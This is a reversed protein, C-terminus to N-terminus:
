ARRGRRAARPGLAPHTRAGGNPLDVLRPLFVTISGQPGRRRLYAYRAGAPALRGTLDALSPMRWPSAPQWVAEAEWPVEGSVTVAVYDGAAPGGPDDPDPPPVTVNSVNLTLEELRAGRSLSAAMMEGLLPIFETDDTAAEWLQPPQEVKMFGHARLLAELRM